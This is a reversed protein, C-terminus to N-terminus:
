QLEVLLGGCVGGCCSTSERYENNIVCWYYQLWLNSTPGIVHSNRACRAPSMASEHTSESPILSGPAPGPPAKGNNLQKVRKLHSKGNYHIQAQAASNLQINCAECLSFLMKKREMSLPFEPRDNRQFNEEFGRLFTATSMVGNELIYDPSLPRKM